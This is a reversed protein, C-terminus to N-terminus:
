QMSKAVLIERLISSPPNCYFTEVTLRTTPNSSRRLRSLVVFGKLRFIWCSKSEKNSMRKLILPASEQQLVFPRESNVPCGLEVIADQAPDYKWIPNLRPKNGEMGSIEAVETIRRLTKGGRHVRSQMLILDLGTLMIPPVNMPASTLRTVTESATNSHLSGCSGDHGTNM